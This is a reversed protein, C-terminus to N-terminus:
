KKNKDEGYVYDMYFVAGVPTTMPQIGVLQNRFLPSAVRSVRPLVFSSFPDKPEVSWIVSIQDEAVAVVMGHGGYVRHKVWDGPKVAEATLESGDETVIVISQSGAAYTKLSM